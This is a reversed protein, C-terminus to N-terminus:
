KQLDITEFCTVQRFDPEQPSTAIVQEFEGIIDLLKGIRDQDLESFVDDLLLVPEQGTQEEMYRAEALKWSILVTRLQGESAYVEAPEDNLAFKLDDRHPGCLTHGVQVEQERRRVLEDRLEFRLADRGMAESGRYGVSAKEDAPSFRACYRAFPDRLKELAELRYERLSAGLNVLQADWPEIAGQEVFSRNSKKAARLLHNRQSLVRYYRQLCQLYGTDSQSILIDLLRRRQAPSRLVLSVDRPSFHVTRFIGLLDSVRPLPSADTFAKKGEKKGYFVRLQQNNRGDSCLAQVDFHADDHPVSQVDKAGRVSKGISLYAIAELINSKGRGNPGFILVHNAEFSLRIATFNRFPRLTLERIRM